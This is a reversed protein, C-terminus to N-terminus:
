CIFIDEQTKSRFCTYAKVKSLQLDENLLKKNNVKELMRAGFSPTHGSQSLLNVPTSITLRFIYLVTADDCFRCSEEM